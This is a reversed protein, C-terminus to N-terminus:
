QEPTISFWEMRRGDIQSVYKRVKGAIDRGITIREEDRTDQVSANAEFSAPILSMDPISYKSAMHTKVDINDRDAILSPENAFISVFSVGSSRETVSQVVRRSQAISDYVALVTMTVIMMAIVTELLGFAKKNM